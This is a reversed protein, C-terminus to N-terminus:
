VEIIVFVSFFDFYARMDCSNVYAVVSPGPAKSSKLENIILLVEIQDCPRLFVKENSNKFFSNFFYLHKQLKHKYTFINRYSINTPLSTKKRQFM